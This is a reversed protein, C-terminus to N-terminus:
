RSSQQLYKRLAARVADEALVSTHVKQPSLGGLATNVEARTLALAETVGRGILLETTVSGAAIAAPCGMTKFKAETICQNEIRLYLHMTDGCAPNSVVAEADAPAIVGVNRPNAFHDAIIDTYDM